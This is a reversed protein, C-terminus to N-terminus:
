LSAVNDSNYHKGDIQEYGQSIIKAQYVEDSKKKLAWTSTLILNNPPVEKQNVLKFLKYGMMHDFEEKIAKEWKKKDSSAMAKDYKMPKLEQTNEFGGM